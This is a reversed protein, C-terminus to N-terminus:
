YSFMLIAHVIGSYESPRIGSPYAKAHMEELFLSFFLLYFLEFVFMYLAGCFASRDKQLVNLQHHQVSLVPM